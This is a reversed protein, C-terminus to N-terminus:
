RRKLIEVSRLHSCLKASLERSCRDRAKARYSGSKIVEKAEAKQAQRRGATQRAIKSLLGIDREYVPYKEDKRFDLSSSDSCRSLTARRLAAVHALPVARRKSVLSKATRLPFAYMERNIRLGGTAAPSFCVLFSRM